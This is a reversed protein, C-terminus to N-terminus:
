SFGFQYLFNELFVRFSGKSFIEKKEKRYIYNIYNVYYIFLFYDFNWIFIFVFEIFYKEGQESYAIEWNAPLPGKVDTSM